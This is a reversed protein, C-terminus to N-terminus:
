AHPLGGMTLSIPEMTGLALLAWLVVALLVAVLVRGHDVHRHLRHRGPLGSVVPSGGAAGVVCDRGAAGGSIAALQVGWLLIVRQAIRRLAWRLVWRRRAANIMRVAMDVDAPGVAGVSVRWRLLLDVLGVYLNLDPWRVAVRLADMLRQDMMVAGLDLPMSEIGVRSM